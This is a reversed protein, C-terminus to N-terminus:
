HVTILSLCLFKDRLKLFMLEYMEGSLSFENKTKKPFEYSNLEKNKWQESVV